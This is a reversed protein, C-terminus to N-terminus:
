GDSSETTLSQEGDYRKIAGPFWDVFRLATGYLIYIEESTKELTFSGFDQHVLRNRERGVELFAQISAKIDDDQAVSANMAKRFEDGFMGFFSNANKGDWDFWTHYQRRVVRNRVLWTLVHNNATAEATFQLVADTMRQEFHSAAAMLLAKRFSDDAASRLSPEGALQPLELLASYEGHLRDVVTPSM